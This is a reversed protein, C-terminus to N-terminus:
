TSTAGERPVFFCTKRELSPQILDDNQLDSLLFLSLRISILLYIVYKPFTASFMLTQRTESSQMDEQEVIQRIQPEFGMDLMRDAEDFVLYSVQSLTIRARQVFDVLRGPTAVLLDCGRSLMQFQERPETGGYVVASRMGSRYMFKRSQDYIQTALERTPALVLGQPAFKKNRAYANGSGANPDVPGRVLMMAIVPLLFAATKGSGTQACAMLDRAALAIPIANKQVPTPRTYGALKVNTTLIEPLQLDDFSELPSPIDNGSTEVPVQDYQDFNIGQEVRELFDKEEFPNPEVDRPRGFRQNDGGGRGGQFGGHPARDGGRSGFAGGFDRPAHSESPPAYRADNESWRSQANNNSASWAAPRASNSSPAAAIPAPAAQRNRLHPPVYQRQPSLALPFLVFHPQLGDGFHVLDVSSLVKPAANLTADSENSASFQEASSM